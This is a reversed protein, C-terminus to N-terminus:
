DKTKKQKVTKKLTSSNIGDSNTFFGTEKFEKQERNAREQDKAAEDVYPQKQEETLTQWLAACKTFAERFPIGDRESTLKASKTIYCLYPHMAKKPKIAVEVEEIVPAVTQKTSMNKQQAKTLKQTVKSQQESVNCYARKETATM